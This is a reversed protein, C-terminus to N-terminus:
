RKLSLAGASLGTVLLMYFGILLNINSNLNLPGALFVTAITGIVAGLIGLLVSGKRRFLAKVLLLGAIIGLLYGVLAGGIALGLGGFEMDNPGIIKGGILAGATAFVVGVVALSIMMLIFRFIKM